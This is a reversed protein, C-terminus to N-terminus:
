VSGKKFAEWVVFRLGGSISHFEIQFKSNKSPLIKMKKFFSGSVFWKKWFAGWGRKHGLRRSM